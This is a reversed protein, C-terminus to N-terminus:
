RYSQGSYSLGKGGEVGRPANEWGASKYYEDYTMANTPVGAQGPFAMAYEKRNRGANAPDPVYLIKDYPVNEVTGDDWLVQYFGVPNLTSRAGAFQRNNQHVYTSTYALVDKTGPQKTSFKATKDPRLTDSGFAIMRGTREQPDDSYKVDPNAIAKDMDSLGTVGYSKPTKMLDTFMDGFSNPFSGHLRKYTNYFGSLKLLTRRGNAPNGPVRGNTDNEVYGDNPIRYNLDGPKPHTARYLHISYFGCLLVLSVLVTVRLWTKELM